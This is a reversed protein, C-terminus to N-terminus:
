LMLTDAPSKGLEKQWSKLVKEAVELYKVGTLPPDIPAPKRSIGSKIYELRGDPRLAIAPAVPTGQDIIIRGRGGKEVREPLQSKQKKPQRELHRKLYQYLKGMRIQLFRESDAIVGLNVDIQEELEKNGM